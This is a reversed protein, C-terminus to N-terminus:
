TEGNSISGLHPKSACDRIVYVPYVFNFFSNEIVPKMIISKKTCLSCNCKYLGELISSTNIKFRVKGCHCSGLYDSKVEEM